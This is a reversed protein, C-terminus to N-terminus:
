LTEDIAFKPNRLVIKTIDSYFSYVNEPEIPAQGPHASNNRLEFCFRLRQHQNGDILELYELVWLIDTDFIRQLESLSDVKHKKKFPKFRGYNKEAMEETASSFRDYGIQAIRSHIRSITACWGLVICGKLAKVSLCRQAEDLYDGEDTPLGELYPAISLSAVSNFAGIEAAHILENEYKPVLQSILGAYTSKTARIRSTKLLNEFLASFGSTTEAPAQATDLLPKIEDFWRRALAHAALKVDSKEVQRTRVASVARGLSVLERCHSKLTAVLQTKM